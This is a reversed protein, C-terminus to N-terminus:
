DPGPGYGPHKTLQTWKAQIDPVYVQTMWDQPQVEEFGISVSGTAAGLHAKVDSLIAESLAAIQQDSSGPWLKVIIHPM